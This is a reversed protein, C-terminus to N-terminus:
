NSEAASSDQGKGGDRSGVGDIFNGLDKKKYYSSEIADDKVAVKHGRLAYSIEAFRSNVSQGMVRVIAIAAVSMLAVIILYEILGQGKQNKVLNRKFM